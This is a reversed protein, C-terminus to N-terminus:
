KKGGEWHISLEHGDAVQKNCWELVSPKVELKKAKRAM